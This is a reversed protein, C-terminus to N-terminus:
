SKSWEAKNLFDVLGTYAKGTEKFKCSFNKETLYDTTGSNNLFYVSKSGDPFNLIGTVIVKQQNITDVYEKGIMPRKQEYSYLRGIITRMDYKRIINNYNCGFISQREDFDLCILKVMAEHAEEMATEYADKRLKEIEMDTYHSEMNKEKVMPRNYPYEGRYLIGDMYYTKGCCWRPYSIDSLFVHVDNNKMTFEVIGSRSKTSVIVSKWEHFFDYAADKSHVVKSYLHAFVNNNMSM